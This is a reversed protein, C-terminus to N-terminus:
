RMLCQNRLIKTHKALCCRIHSTHSYNKAGGKLAKAAGCLTGATDVIDDVMITTKESVDGIIQMSKSM